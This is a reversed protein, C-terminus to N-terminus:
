QTLKQLLSKGEVDTLVRNHILTVILESLVDKLKNDPRPEIYQTAQEELTELPPSSEGNLEQLWEELVMICEADLNKFALGMGLGATAFSVTGETEFSVNAKMIRIRVDAGTPFPNITDIYCGGRALDSVRGHLRTDSEMQALQVSASFPFRAGKRREAGTADAISVNPKRSLKPM